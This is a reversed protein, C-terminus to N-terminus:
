AASSQPGDALLADLFEDRDFDRLDGIGEGVGIFRIPINLEQAIAIVIGGKATGDLKTLALSTIGVAQHFQKAQVLANQGTTADLVLMIEHPAGPLAKDAARRVKELEAMLNVKTHLRGATDCICYDAGESRAKQIADYTVAAPDADEPGRVLSAGAREAWTALQEVAAARFTDGAGLVVKHGSGTLRAAWKGITTTKGVGNVGVVMIVRPRSEVADLSPPTATLAEAALGRLRGRVVPLADQASLAGDQELREILRTSATVGVDASILLEELSELLESDLSRGGLLESLRSLLGSRPKALRSVLSAPDAAAPAPKPVASASDTAPAADTAQATETPAADAAAGGSSRGSNRRGAWVGAGVALLVAVVAIVAADTTKLWPPLDAWLSAATSPTAQGLLARGLASCVTGTNM